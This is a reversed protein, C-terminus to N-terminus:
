WWVKGEPIPNQDAERVEKKEGQAEVRSSLAVEAISM